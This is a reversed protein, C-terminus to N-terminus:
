WKELEKLFEESTYSTCNGAEIQKWAEETRRGFELDEKMQESDVKRLIIKDGEMEILMEEGEQIDIGINPPIIIQRESGVKIMNIDEM